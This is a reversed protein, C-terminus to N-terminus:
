LREGPFILEVSLGLFIGVANSVIVDIGGLAEITSKVMRVCDVLVGADKVYLCILGVWLITM